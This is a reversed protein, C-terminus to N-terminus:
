PPMGWAKGVRMLWGISPREFAKNQDALLCAPRNSLSPCDISACVAACPGAADLLVDAWMQGFGLRPEPELTLHQYAVTINRACSGGKVASQDISFRPEVLPGVVDMLCSGFLRRLTSPLQLPRQGATTEVGDKKPIWVLLDTAPGLVPIVM